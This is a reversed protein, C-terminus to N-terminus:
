SILRELFSKMGEVKGSVVRSAWAGLADLKEKREVCGCPAGIWTSVREPTVGITELAKAINSGVQM